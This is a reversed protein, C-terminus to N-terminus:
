DEAPKRVEFEFGLSRMDAWFQEMLAPLRAKLREALDDAMLEEDTADPWVACRRAAALDREKGEHMVWPIPVITGGIRTAMAEAVQKEPLEHERGPIVEFVMGGNPAQVNYRYWRVEGKRGGWCDKDSAHWLTNAIYHMPGENLFCLHWKILPALDPFHKAVKDHMCGCGSFTRRRLSDLRYETATISFYPDQNGITVFGFEAVLEYANVGETYKVSRKLKQDSM